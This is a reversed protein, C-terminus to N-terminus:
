DADHNAWIVAPSIWEDLPEYLIGHGTGIDLVVEDYRSIGKGESFLYLERCSGAFEDVSDYISLVNGTMYIQDQRLNKVVDPHCIAMIIFNIEPNKVFYSVFIAIGAGKSAGIVTINKAPVGENLLITIQDTVKRAYKVGDTDKPRQESIVVFDHESLKELIPLYKYEGYKPSIAPIGQDEVIKGHLYFLYRKTPDISAPFEYDALSVQNVRIKPTQRIKPKTPVPDVGIPTPTLATNTPAGSCGILSAVILIVGTIQRYAM